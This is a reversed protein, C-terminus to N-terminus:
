IESFSGFVRLFVWLSGFSEFSESVGTVRYHSLFEKYRVMEGEYSEFARLQAHFESLHLEKM